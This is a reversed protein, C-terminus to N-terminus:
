GAVGERAPGRWWLRCVARVMKHMRRPMAPVHGTARVELAPVNCVGADARGPACRKGSVAVSGAPCRSRHRPLLLTTPAPHDM